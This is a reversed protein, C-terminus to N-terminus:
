STLQQKVGTEVIEGFGDDDGGRQNLLQIAGKRAAPSLHMYRLTTMLNEHGALEQIAKPPAGRMALHSCFTHRLKHLCGEPELGALKESARLWCYLTSHIPPTGDDRYLVRPGRLHRAAHLAAALVDTMPVIRGHGSKPADVVNRWVSQQISLQRRRFDIDTWRLGVIEGLRLGADGGLLVVLHARTDHRISAEVLRQYQGFEYFKVVINSVKMLEIACPLVSIEKWKLAVKLLKGLVSLVNNVTKKSRDALGAKLAQVDEDTITDLKKKGFRPYLHTKLIQEKSAVGSAKQRNAKAYNEIFRPGFDDLTPAEKKPVVIPRESPSPERLFAAERAEGWRKAASKSEVPAKIRRRFPTGDPYTIRIDVEFGGSRFARVKVTMEPDKGAIGSTERRAV